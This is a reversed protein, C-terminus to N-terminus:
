RILEQIWRMLKMGLLIPNPIVALTRWLLKLSLFLLTGAVLEPAAPDEAVPEEIELEVYKEGSGKQEKQIGPM